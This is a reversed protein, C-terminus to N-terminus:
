IENEVTFDSISQLLKGSVVYPNDANDQVEILIADGDVELVRFKDGACLKLGMEGDADHNVSFLRGATASSKNIRSKVAKIAKAGSQMIVPGVATGLATGVILSGAVVYLGLKVPGDAAKALQVLKQYNGLNGVSGM